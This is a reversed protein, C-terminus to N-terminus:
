GRDCLLGRLQLLLADVSVQSEARPGHTSPRFPTGDIWDDLLKGDTNHHIVRQGGGGGDWLRLTVAQLERLVIQKDNPKQSGDDNLGPNMELGYNNICGKIRFTQGSTGIMEVCDEDQLFKWFADADSGAGYVQVWMLVQCVCRMFFEDSADRGTPTGGLVAILLALFINISIDYVIHDMAFYVFDPTDAEGMEARYEQM